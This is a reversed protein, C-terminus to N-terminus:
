GFDNANRILYGGTQKALLEHGERNDTLMVSRSHMISPVIVNLRGATAFGAPPKDMTTLGTYQLGRTDVAYIVVSARIALEAVKKVQGYYHTREDNGLDDEGSNLTTTGPDQTEIPLQDSLLVLSKRGPLDRMGEVIFKLAQLTDRINRSGGCPLESPESSTTPTGVPAFVHIGARSCPYWRLRDIANYLMRRDTTFQQLAGVEGSTRIIAVLDNPQLQENVFKRVQNRAFAVSEFSMGLDDVVLAIIRRVDHPRVAAPVVPAGNKDKGPPTAAVNSPVTSVNSIYSFNTITQPKGDEFLQFDEPKLDTVQKGDKTVVADVQVLNTTIKVVDQSDVDPPNQPQTIAPKSPETTPRQPQQGTARPLLAVLLMLSLLTSQVMAM